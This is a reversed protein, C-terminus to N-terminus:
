SRCSYTLVPNKSNTLKIKITTDWRVERVAARQKAAPDEKTSGDPNLIVKTLKNYLNAFDPNQQLVSGEVPPFM